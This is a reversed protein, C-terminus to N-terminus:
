EFEKYGLWENLWRFSKAEELWSDYWGFRKPEIDVSKIEQNNIQQVCM